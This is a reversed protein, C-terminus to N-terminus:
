NMIYHHLDFRSHFEKTTSTALELTRGRCEQVTSSEWPLNGQTKQLFAPTLGIYLDHLLLVGSFWSGGEAPEPSSEKPHTARLGDM